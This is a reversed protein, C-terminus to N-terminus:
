RPAEEYQARFAACAARHAECDRSAAPDIECQRERRGCLHGADYAMLLAERAWPALHRKPPDAALVSTAFLIVILISKM